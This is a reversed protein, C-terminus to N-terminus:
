MTIARKRVNIACPLGIVGSCRVGDCVRIRSEVGDGSRGGGNDVGFVGASKPPSSEGEGGLVGLHRLERGDISTM